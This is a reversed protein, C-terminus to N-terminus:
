NQNREYEKKDRKRDYAKKDKFYKTAPNVGNWDRRMDKLLTMKTRVKIKKM